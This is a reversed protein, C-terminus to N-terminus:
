IGNLDITKYVDLFENLIMSTAGWIVIDEVVFCPAEIMFDAFTRHKKTTLVREDLFSDISIKHISAVESEQRVMKIDSHTLWAVTPYVVFNSVPIYIPTLNGLIQLYEAEIGIEEYVERLAAQQISEDKEIRGGPFSIQGPHKDREHTARKIFITQISNEKEYLCLMTAAEKANEPPNFQISRGSPALKAHSNPGPLEETLKLQLIEGVKHSNSYSM